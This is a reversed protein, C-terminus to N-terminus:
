IYYLNVIMDTDRSSSGLLQRIKYVTENELASKNLVRLEAEVKLHRPNFKAFKEPSGGAKINYWSPFSDSMRQNANYYRELESLILKSFPQTTAISDLQVQPLYLHKDLDVYFVRLNVTTPLPRDILFARLAGDNPWLGRLKNQWITGSKLLQVGESNLLYSKSKDVYLEKRKVLNDLLQQVKTDNNATMGVRNNTGDPLTYSIFVKIKENTPAPNSSVSELDVLVPVLPMDADAMMTKLEEVSKDELGSYVKLPFCAAGIELTSSTYWVYFEDKKSLNNSYKTLESRILEKVSREKRGALSIASIQFTREEGMRGPICSVSLNIMAEPEDGVSAPKGKYEVRVGVSAKIKGLKEVANRADAVSLTKLDTDGPMLTAETVTLANPDFKPKGNQVGIKSKYWEVFIAGESCLNYREELASLVSDAFKKRPEDTLQVGFTPPSASLDDSYNCVITVNVPEAPMSSHSSSRSSSSSSASEGGSGGQAGFSLAAREKLIKWMRRLDNAAAHNFGLQPKKPSFLQSQIAKKSAKYRKKFENLFKDYNAKNFPKKACVIFYRYLRAILESYHMKEYEQDSLTESPKKKCIRADDNDHYFLTDKNNKNALNAKSPGGCLPYTTIETGNNYKLGFVKECIDEWSNIDEPKPYAM